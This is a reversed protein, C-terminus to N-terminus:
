SRPARPLKWGFRESAVRLAFTLLVAGSVSPVQPLGAWHCAAYVAAGALAAAAYVDERLVRPIEASMIDRLAGGGVGTMVGLLVAALPDLGHELAKHCGSVAFVGLGAADLLMVPRKLAELRSGLFFAALGASCAVLLLRTDRLSEPPLDGLLIDRMTGGAVGVAAALVLIGFLDLEKRIAVTAGSLGFAFTGLIDLMGFLPIDGM